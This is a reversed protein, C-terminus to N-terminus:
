AELRNLLRNSRKLPPFGTDNVDNIPASTFDSRTLLRGLVTEVCGICKMGKYSPNAQLWIHSHLMYYEAVGRPSTDVGCDLCLFASM